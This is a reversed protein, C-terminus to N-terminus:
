RSEALKRLRPGALPAAAVVAAVLALFAGFSWGVAVGTAGPKMLFAILVIVFNAVSVGMVILAHPVSARVPLQKWGATALFYLLLLITLVLTVYLIGHAQLGSATASVGTASARFWPLFLSILVAASAIATIRDAKSWRALDFKYV